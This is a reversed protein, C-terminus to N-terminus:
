RTEANAALANAAVANAALADLATQALCAASLGMKEYLYTQSGTIGDPMQAVGCRVLRCPLAREAITEAVLSGLGGVLYHSEVSLALSFGALIRALDDTPSPNFSSVVVVTADVGQKALLKQAAVVEGTINGTVVLCLQGNQGGASSRITQCTGLEFRGDLEPVVAKDDKGLRYYIPGPLDWTQLFASRAQPNDSPAITTMAPQARMVAIDELGYHSLGNQGYEVGGGVGVVRVPFRHQIPGNRIFEYPRLTAFTVISYVWPQLGAEAMGTAMGVMNQESVGVNFFRKPFREAFPELAMYGLDGTLLMIKENEEALDALTTAFIKRM